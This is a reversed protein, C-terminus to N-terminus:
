GVDFHLATARQGFQRAGVIHDIQVPRAHLRLGLAAPIDHPNRYM